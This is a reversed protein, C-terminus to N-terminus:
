LESRAVGGEFLVEQAQLGLLVVKSCFVLAEACNDYGHCLLQRLADIVDVLKHLFGRGRHAVHTGRTQEQLWDDLM